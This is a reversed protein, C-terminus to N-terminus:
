KRGRLRNALASIRHALRFVGSARIDALEARATERESEAIALRARLESIQRSADERLARLRRRLTIVDDGTPPDRNLEEVFAALEGPFDAVRGGAPPVNPM